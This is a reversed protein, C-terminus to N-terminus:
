DNRPTGPFRLQQLKNVKEVIEAHKPNSSELYAPDAMLKRVEAGAAEATTIGDVSAVVFGAEQLMGGLAYFAKLIAPHNGLGSEALVKATDSGATELAKKALALRPEYEMGWEKVLAAEARRREAITTEHEQVTLRAANQFIREVQKDNCGAEFCSELLWSEMGPDMKVDSPMQPREFKYESPSAPRGLKGYFATWDEPKADAKPIRVSQGQYSELEVLSKIAASPEKFKELAKLAKEDAAFSPFLGHRWDNPQYPNAPPQASGGSDGQGGSGGGEGANGGSGKGGAGKDGGAGSNAQGSAGADGSGGAGAAAGANGGGTGGAGADEYLGIGLLQKLTM